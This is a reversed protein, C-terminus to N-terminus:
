PPVPPSLPTSPTPVAPLTPATPSAAALASLDIVTTGAQLPRALRQGHHLVSVAELSSRRVRLRLLGQDNSRGAAQWGGLSWQQYFIDQGAVPREADVVRVPVGCGVLLLAWVALGGMTAYRGKM